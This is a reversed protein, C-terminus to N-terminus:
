SRTSVSESARSAGSEIASQYIRELRDVVREWSMTTLARERNHRGMAARRQADPLLQILAGALENARRPPVKLGGEADALYALGGADTVVLPKACAMAEAASMGYPEGHSPQCFVACRQLLGLSEERTQRGLFLVREGLLDPRVLAEAPGREPGEGGILLRAQPLTDAVENFAAILDLIGKRAVLNSLFLIDQSAQETSGEPLPAFFTTDLGHPLIELRDRLAAAEPVRSAAAPTTLLLAAARAQQAAAIRSRVWLAGSRLSSASSIAADPDEPWSTVFPGLVLPVATRPLALSMGTFVPNLQHIVDFGISQHLTKYLARMERMYRLRDLLGGKCGLETVVVNAPLPHRVDVLEAAVHIRHGREGLHRLFGYAVLGDGHPQHDTLLSSCHPVFINLPRRM